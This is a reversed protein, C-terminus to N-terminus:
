SVILIANQRYVCGAVNEAAINVNITGGGVTLQGDDSNEVALGSVHLDTSKTDVTDTGDSDFTIAAGNIETQLTIYM